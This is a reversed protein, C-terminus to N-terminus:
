HRNERHRQLIRSITPSTTCEIDFVTNYVKRDRINSIHNSIRIFYLFLHLAVTVRVRAYAGPPGKILTFGGDGYETASATIAQLQSPNMKSKAFIRFGVPLANGGSALPDFKTISGGNPTGNTQEPMDKEQKSSTTKGNLLYRTLPINDTKALASFERVALSEVCSYLSHCM